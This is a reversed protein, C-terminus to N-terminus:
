MNLFPPSPTVQCMDLRRCSKDDIKKKKKKRTYLAPSMKLKIKCQCMEFVVLFGEAYTCNFGGGLAEYWIFHNNLSIM